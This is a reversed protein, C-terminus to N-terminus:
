ILGQKTPKKFYDFAKDSNRKSGYGFSYCSGTLLQASANGEDAAKKWETINKKCFEKQLDDPLTKFMSIDQANM